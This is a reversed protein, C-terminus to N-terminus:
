RNSWTLYAGLALGALIFLVVATLALARLVCRRRRRHRGAAFAEAVLEDAWARGQPTDGLSRLVACVGEDTATDHSM